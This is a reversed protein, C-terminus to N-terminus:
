NLEDRFPMYVSDPDIGADEAFELIATKFENELFDEDIIDAAMVETLVPEKSTNAQLILAGVFLIVLLSPFIFKKMIDKAKRYM